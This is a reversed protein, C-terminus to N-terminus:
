LETQSLSALVFDGLTTCQQEMSPIGGLMSSEAPKMQLHCLVECFPYSTIGMKHFLLVSDVLVSVGHEFDGGFSTSPPIPPM